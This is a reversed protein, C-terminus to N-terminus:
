NLPPALAPGLADEPNLEELEVHATEPYLTLILVTVIIPGAALIALGPGLKGYHDALRGAITLGVASGAVGGLTILGNAKARLATPFLEPGYVGLAPVTLAAVITGVTFLAWMTPGSTQYALALLTAGGFTGIAGITKRGRQEALRGGVIIGIGGPTTTIMTFLALMPATFGHEEKLFENQFQTMPALFLLGFFGSAGLLALRAGHGKFTAKGHPRVFRRSEPLRAAVGLCWPLLLIPVVYVARWAWPALDAFSVVAVALGAGLASTMALVSAAFARGGAPMEEAAVVVLLLSLATSFARTFTQTAGLMWLTPAVAGALSGLAGGVACVSLLKKRGRKDAAVMLLISLLVGARVAGLAAGQAANSSGFEDSAFTITQTITTGLYGALLSLGCLRSLVSTARANLRDPPSWWPARYTEGDKLAEPPGSRTLERKVLPRFLRGWIPIAIKWRITETVEINGNDLPSSCLTRTYVDFPGEACGFEIPQSLETSAPSELTEKIIDDRPIKLADFGDQDTVFKNITTNTV